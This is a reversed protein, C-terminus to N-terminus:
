ASVGITAKPHAECAALFTRAFKLASDYDGWGNSPNLARYAAPDSEMKAVAERMSPIVTEALQWNSMYLADYCGALEWMPTVNHTYNGSYWEVERADLECQACAPFSQKLWIDLSM